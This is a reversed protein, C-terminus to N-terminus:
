GARTVNGAARAPDPTRAVGGAVIGFMAVAATEGNAIEAEPSIVNAAVAEAVMEGNASTPVATSVKAAVAFEVQEGNAVTAVPLSDNVHEPPAAAEDTAQVPEADSDKVPM